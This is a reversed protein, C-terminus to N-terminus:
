CCVELLLNYKESKVHLSDYKQQLCPSDVSDWIASSLTSHKLLNCLSIFWPIRGATQQTDLLKTSKIVTLQNFIKFVEDWHMTYFALVFEGLCSRSLCVSAGALTSICKALKSSVKTWLLPLRNFSALDLYWTCIFIWVNTISPHTIRLYKSM